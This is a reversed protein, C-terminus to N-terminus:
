TSHAHMSLHMSHPSRCTGAPASPQQLSPRAGPLSPSCPAAACPTSRSPPGPARKREAQHAMCAGGGSSACHCTASLVQMLFLTAHRCTQHGTRYHVADLAGLMLLGHQSRHARVHGCMTRRRAKESRIMWGPAHMSLLVPSRLTLPRRHMSHRLHVPPSAAIPPATLECSGSECHRQV